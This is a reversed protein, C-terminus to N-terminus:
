AGFVETLRNIKEVSTAEVIFSRELGKTQIEIRFIDRPLLYTIKEPWEILSVSNYFAEEIDLEYADEPKKLRYMDFHYIEFNEAEYTQVLTFTPSPIDLAKTLTQIFYRSFTSKGVGLTGFLAFIDGKQALLAFKQALLRTDDESSCIFTKKYSM